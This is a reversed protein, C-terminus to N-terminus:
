KRYIKYIQFNVLKIVNPILILIIFYINCYLRCIKNNQIEYFGQKSTESTEFEGFYFNFLASDMQILVFSM